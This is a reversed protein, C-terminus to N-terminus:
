SVRVSRGSQRPAPVRFNESREDSAELDGARNRQWESAFRRGKSDEFLDGVKGKFPIFYHHRELATDNRLNKTDFVQGVFVRGTEDSYTFDKTARVKAM